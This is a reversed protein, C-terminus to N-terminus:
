PTNSRTPTSSAGHQRPGADHSRSVVFLHGDPDHSAFTGGRRALAPGLAQRLRGYDLDGALGPLDQPMEAGRPRLARKLASIRQRLATDTLGLLYAIEPRTHGSLALAAFVRLSPPLGDLLERSDAIEPPPTGDRPEHWQAERRRRRAATRASLRAKNCIVGGMWRLSQPSGDLRGALAAECLADQVLDEAEGDRRSWREAIRLLRRRDALTPLPPASM